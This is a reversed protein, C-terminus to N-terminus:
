FKRAFSAAVLGGPILGSGLLMCAKTGAHRALINVFPAVWLAALFYTGGVFTYDLSSTGPFYDNDLYFEHYVSFSSEWV